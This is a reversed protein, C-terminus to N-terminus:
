GILPEGSQDTITGSVTVALPEIKMGSVRDPMPVTRHNIPSQSREEQSDIVSELHRVMGKLSSIAEQSGEYLIIYRNDFIKYQLSTGALLKSLAHEINRYHEPEYSVEVDQIMKEDYSFFVEYKQSLKTLAEALQIEEPANNVKHAILGPITCFNFFLLLILGFC